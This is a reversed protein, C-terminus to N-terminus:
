TLEPRITQIYPRLMTQLIDDYAAAHALDPFEDPDLFFCACYECADDLTDAAAIADAINSALIRTADDIATQLPNTNTM